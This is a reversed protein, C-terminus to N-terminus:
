YPLFEVALGARQAHTILDESAFMYTRFRVDRALMYKETLPAFAPRTLIAIGRIDSFASNETDILELTREIRGALFTRDGGRLHLSAPVVTVDDAFAAPMVAVFTESFLPVGKTTQLYDPAIRDFRRVDLDIDIDVADVTLEASADDVFLRCGFDDEGRMTISFEGLATPHLLEYTAM